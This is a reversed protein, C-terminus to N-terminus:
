IKKVSNRVVLTGTILITEPMGASPHSIRQVVQELARKGIQHSSVRITTLPPDSLGSSPLDDFGILSIDEPLRYHRDRLARMCGYAIIDNMCFFATPLTHATDLYASMDLISQDFTPDVSIIFDEQLPLSFYEMAERFGVERLKFNRCEYSSKILGIRQHGCQYLHQISKFVGDHNDMDICDYPSLPFYTDIFVVPQSLESFLAAEHPDLETGLVILGQATIGRQAAIIESMPVKNFFSVELTHGRRKAEVEIGELYETIFPNHRENIIHGHKAIKLFKITIHENIVTQEPSVYRYGMQIALGIIRQRLEDSVGTKHNLALSVASPSVKAAQAIDSIRVPM